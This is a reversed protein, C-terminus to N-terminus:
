YTTGTGVHRMHEYMYLVLVITSHMYVDCLNKTGPVLVVPLTSNWLVSYLQLICHVVPLNSYVTGTRQCRYLAVTNSITTKM